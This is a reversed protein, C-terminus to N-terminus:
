RKGRTLVFLGALLLGLLGVITSPEPVATVTLVTYGALNGEAMYQLTYDDGATANTILDWAAASDDWYRIADSGDALNLFHFISGDADGHLALMGGSAMNILGYGAAVDNGISLAGRISVLGGHNINLTGSGSDGVNFHSGIALASGTGDVTVVGSGERFGISSSRTDDQSIVRGGNTILVTGSGGFSGINIHGGNTWTSGAGDVRVIRTADPDRSIDTGNPADAIVTGGNTVSLSGNGESGVYLSSPMLTSGIGDVTLTGNSDRSDSVVVSGKLTGGSTVNLVGNGGYRGLRLVDGRFDWMSGAGTVTVVGTSGKHTGVYGAAAHVVVGDKFTLSGNGRYGAGLWGQNEPNSLDLELAVNGSGNVLTITRVLDDASDFVLDIDSIIGRTRITGTGTIQAPSALLTKTTLTGGGVGFNIVGTSEPTPNAAVHTRETVTVTAGGSFNLTGTGDTGVCLRGSTFNSGAGDVNMVGSGTAEAGLYTYTSSVSGGGAINLTGSGARGVLLRFSNPWKASAGTVDVVGIVGNRYGIYATESFMNSSGDVTVSGYSRDGIVSETM